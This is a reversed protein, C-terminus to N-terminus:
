PSPLYVRASVCAYAMGNLGTCVNTSMPEFTSPMPVPSCVTNSSGGVPTTVSYGVCPNNAARVISGGSAGLLFVASALVLRPKRM